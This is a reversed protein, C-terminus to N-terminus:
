SVQGFRMARRLSGSGRARRRAAPPANAPRPLCSGHHHRHARVPLPVPKPVLRTWNTRFSPHSTDVKYPLSPARPAPRPRAQYAMDWVARLLMSRRARAGRLRRRAHPAPRRPTARSQAGRQPTSTPSPTRTSPLSWSTGSVRGACRCTSTPCSASSCTTAHRRSTITPSGGSVWSCGCTGASTCWMRAM